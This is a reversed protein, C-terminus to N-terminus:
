GYIRSQCGSDYDHIHGIRLQVTWFSGLCFSAMGVGSNNYSQLDSRIYVFVDVMEVSPVTPLSDLAFIKSM